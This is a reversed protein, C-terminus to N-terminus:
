DSGIVSGRDLRIKFLDSNSLLNFCLINFNEGFRFEVITLNGTKSELGKIYTKKRVNFVNM